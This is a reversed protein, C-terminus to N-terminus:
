YKFLSFLGWKFNISGTLKSAKVLAKPMKDKNLLHMMGEEVAFWGVVVRM